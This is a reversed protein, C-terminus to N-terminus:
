VEDGGHGILSDHMRMLRRPEPIINTSNREVHTFAVTDPVCTRPYPFIQSESSKWHPFEEIPADLVVGRQSRAEESTGYGNRQTSLGLYNELINRSTFRESLLGPFSSGAYSGQCVFCGTDCLNLAQDLFDVSDVEVGRERVSQVLHPTIHSLLGARRLDSVELADWIESFRIHLHNSEELYQQLPLHEMAEVASADRQLLGVRHNIHEPCSVLWREFGKMFDTVPPPPALMQRQAALASKSIQFHQTVSRATGNGGPEDDYVLVKWNHLDITASIKEEQVGSFTSMAHVLGRGLTNLLTLGLWEGASETMGQINWVERLHANYTPVSEELNSEILGRINERVTQLYLRVDQEDIPAERLTDHVEAMTSPMSSRNIEHLKILLIQVISRITLTEKAGFVGIREIHHNLFQVMDSDFDREMIRTSDRSIREILTHHLAFEIGETDFADGFVVFETQGDFRASYKLLIGRTRRVGTVIDNIHANETFSVTSFVGCLAPHLTVDRQGTGPNRQPSPTYSLISSKEEQDINYTTWKMPWAEPILSYETGQEPRDMYSVLGTGELFAVKSPVNKGNQNTMGVEKRLEIFSPRVMKPEDTEDFGMRLMWPIQELNTGGTVQRVRPLRSLPYDETADAEGANLMVNDYDGNRDTGHGGVPSKLAHGTGSSALRFNWTGPLLDRMVQNLTQTIKPSTGPRAVVIKTERPNDLISNVFCYPADALFCEAKSLLFSLYFKCTPDAFARRVDRAIRGAEADTAPHTDDAIEYMRLLANEIPRVRLKDGIGMNTRTKEAEWAEIAQMYENPTRASGQTLEYLTEKIAEQLILDKDLATRLEGMAQQLRENSGIDVEPFNSHRQHARRIANLISIEENGQTTFNTETLMRLHRVFTDIVRYLEAIDINASTHHFFGNQLWQRCENKTEHTTLVEIARNLGQEWQDSSIEEINIRKSALFDMVGMYAQSIMVSKNRSAIPVVKRIPQLILQGHNNYFEYDQARKSLVTAVNVVANKERGARGAKQRYSAIDRMARHMVVNVVNDMDVGVELTPTAVIVNHLIKRTFNGAASPIPPYAEGSFHEFLKNSSFQQEDDSLGDENRGRSSQDATHRRSRLTQSFVYETNDGMNPREVLNSKVSEPLPVSTAEEELLPAGGAGESFWWCVGAKLMPCEDLGNVLITENDGFQVAEMAFREAESNGGIKSRFAKLRSTEVRLPEDRKCPAAREGDGTREGKCKNCIEPDNLIQALPRDFWHAYPRTIAGGRGHEVQQASISQANMTGENENLIMQWRGVFEKSDAFCITKDIDKADYASDERPPPLQSLDMTQHGILSTANYVPGGKTVGSRPRILVHNVIGGVTGQSEEETPEISIVDDPNCGWVRSIHNAAESITASAAIFDLDGHNHKISRLRNYLGRVHGGELGTALHVEDFVVRQLSNQVAQVVEPIVMRRRFSELGAIIINAARVPEGRREPNRGGYRSVSACVVNDKGDGMWERRPDWRDRLGPITQNFKKIMGGADVAVTLYAHNFSPHEGRALSKNIEIIYEKLTNFQDFALDNRPYSLLQTWETKQDSQIRAKNRLLADVLVPVTFSITKGSGTGASVVVPDNTGKWSTLLSSTIARSQFQTLKFTSADGTVVKGIGRIVIEVANKADARNNEGPFNSVDQLEMARDLEVLFDDISVVREPRDMVAPVWKVAEILQMHTREGEEGDEDETERKVYEHMTGLTRVMESTRTAYKTARGETGPIVMIHNLENLAEVLRVLSNEDTIFDSSAAEEITWPQFNPRGGHPGAVLTAEFQYLEFLTQLLDSDEIILTM